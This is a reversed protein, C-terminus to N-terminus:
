WPFAAASSALLASLGLAAALIHVLSGVRVGLVSVLAAARGQDIGRAVISLVAPGPVVLLALAAVLVVALTSWEPM